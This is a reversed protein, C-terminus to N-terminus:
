VAGARHGPHPPSRCPACLFLSSTRHWAPAHAPASALELQRTTETEAAAPSVAQPRSPAHSHTADPVGQHRGAWRSPRAAATGPACCPAFCAPPSSAAARSPSFTTPGILDGRRCSRWATWSARTSPITPITRSPRAPPPPPQLSPAAAPASRRHRPPLRRSFCGFPTEPDPGRPAPGRFRTSLAGTYQTRCPRAAKQCAKRAAVCNFEERLHLGLPQYNGSCATGEFQPRRDAAAAARRHQRLATLGAPGVRCPPPVAWGDVFVM